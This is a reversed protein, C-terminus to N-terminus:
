IGQAKIVEILKEKSDFFVQGYLPTWPPPGYNTLVTGNAKNHSSVGAFDEDSFEVIEGTDKHLAFLKM